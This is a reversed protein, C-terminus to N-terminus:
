CTKTAFLICFSAVPFRVAWGRANSCSKVSSPNSTLILTQDKESLFTYPDAKRRERSAEKNSTLPQWGVLSCSFYICKKGEVYVGGDVEREGTDIGKGAEAYWHLHTHSCLCLLEPVTEPLQLGFASPQQPHLPMRPCPSVQALWCASLPLCPVSKSVLLSFRGLGFAALSGSLFFSVCVLVLVVVNCYLSVPSWFFPSFLTKVGERQGLLFSMCLEWSFTETECLCVCCPHLCFLFLHCLGLCACPCTWSSKKWIYGLSFDGNCSFCYDDVSLYILM